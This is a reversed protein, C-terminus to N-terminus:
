RQSIQADSVNAVRLIDAPALSHRTQGAVVVSLLLVLLLKGCLRLSAFFPSGRDKCARAGGRLHGASTSHTSSQLLPQDGKRSQAEAPFNRNRCDILLERFEM